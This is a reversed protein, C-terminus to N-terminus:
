RELKLRRRRGMLGVAGFGILSLMAPEPTPSAAVVEGSSLIAAGAGVPTSGADSYFQIQSLQTSTLGTADLGAYVHDSGVGFANTAAATLSGANVNTLGAYSNAVGLTLTSSGLKTIGGNFVVGNM